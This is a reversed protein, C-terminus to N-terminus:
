IAEELRGSFAKPHAAGPGGVPHPLLNVAVWVALRFRISFPPEIGALYGINSSIIVSPTLANVLQNSRLPLIRELGQACYSWALGIRTCLRQFLDFTSTVRGEHYSQEISRPLERYNPADTEGMEPPVSDDRPALIVFISGVRKRRIPIPRAIVQVMPM